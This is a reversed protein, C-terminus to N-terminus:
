VPQEEVAFEAITQEIGDEFLRFDARTLNLIPSGVLTRARVPIQVLSSDVRLTAPVGPSEAKPRARPVLTTREPLPVQFGFAPPQLFATVAATLIWGTSFDRKSATRDRNM